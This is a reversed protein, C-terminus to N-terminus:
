LKKWFNRIIELKKLKNGQYPSKMKKQPFFKTKHDQSQSELIKKTRFSGNSYIIESLESIKKDSFIWASRDATREYNLSNHQTSINNKERFSLCGGKILRNKIQTKETNMGYKNMVFFGKRDFPKSQPNKKLGLIKTSNTNNLSEETIMLSPFLELTDHSVLMSNRQHKLKELIKLDRFSNFSTKEDNRLSWKKKFLGHETPSELFRKNNKEIIPIRMFITSVKDLKASKGCNTCVCSKRRFIEKFLPEPKANLNQNKSMTFNKLKEFKSKITTKKEPESNFFEIPKVFTFSHSKKLILNENKVFKTKIKRKLLDNSKLFFFSNERNSKRSKPTKTNQSSKSSNNEELLADDINSFSDRGEDSSLKLLSQRHLNTKPLYKEFNYLKFKPAFPTLIEKSLSKWLKHSTQVKPILNSLNPVFNPFKTKFLSSLHDNLKDEPENM